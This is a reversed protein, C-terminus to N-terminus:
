ALRQRADSARKIAQGVYNICLMMVLILLAAPLWVWWKNQVIDPNRAFAVLTGLSPTGAPLGYGLFTLGTEIGINGALTLTMNVIVLSSLNPFMEFFMIKWSPTGLTKSANIYDLEREQLARSRILRAKGLWAFISLILIFSVVNYNPIITVLVIIFMTTPLVMMFELFRMMVNDVHGGYFGSILGYSLGVVGAILTVAIGITFSNRAGIMLQGFVDRGGDDTGLWNAASPAKWTNLFNVRKLAVQDIFLPSLYATALIIILLILSIIAMKDHIIERWITKAFSPNNLKERAILDKENITVTNKM